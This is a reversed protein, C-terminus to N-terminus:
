YCHSVSSMLVCCCSHCSTDHQHSVEIMLRHCDEGSCVGTQRYHESIDDLKSNFNPDVPSVSLLSTFPSMSLSVSLSICQPSMSHTVHACLSMVIPTFLCLCVSHCSGVTVHITARFSFPTLLSMFLPMSLSM